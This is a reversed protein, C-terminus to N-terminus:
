SILTLGPVHAFDKRNHTVLELGHYVATAAIWADACSIHHGKKEVAETIEAWQRAIKRSSDLLIYNDVTKALLEMKAAGWHAHIAWLELEALSMFSIFTLQNALLPLYLEYRTDHKIEFSVINTDVLRSEM